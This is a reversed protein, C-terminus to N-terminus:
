PCSRQSVQSSKRFSGAKMSHYDAICDELISIEDKKQLRDLPYVFQGQWKSCNTFVPKGLSISVAKARDSVLTPKGFMDPDNMSAANTQFSAMDFLRTIIRVEDTM